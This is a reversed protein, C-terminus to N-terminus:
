GNIPTLGAENKEGIDSLMQKQMPEEKLAGQRFEDVQRWFEESTVQLQKRRIAQLHKALETM